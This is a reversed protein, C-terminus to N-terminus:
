WPVTWDSVDCGALLDRQSQRHLSREAPAVLLVALKCKPVMDASM